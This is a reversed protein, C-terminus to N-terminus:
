WINFVDNDGSRYNNIYTTSGNQNIQFVKSMALKAVHVTFQGAPSNVITRSMKIPDISGLNGTIPDYSM